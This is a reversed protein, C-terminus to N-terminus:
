LPFSLFLLSDWAQDFPASAPALSIKRALVRVCTDKVKQTDTQVPMGVDMCVRMRVKKGCVFTHLDPGELEALFDQLHWHGRGHKPRRDAGLGLGSRAPPMMCAYLLALAKFVLNWPQEKPGM